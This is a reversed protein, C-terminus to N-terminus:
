LNVEVIEGTLISKRVDILRQNSSGRWHPDAGNFIDRERVGAEYRGDVLVDIASLWDIELEPLNAKEDTFVFNEGKKVLTYGTYLWVDKDKMRSVMRAIRGVQGRNAPHLPDGGSFTIGSIHDQLLLDFLEKEADSNFIKGGTVDWTHPNHCEYCCHECGAVWLVVRLGEGNKLDDKTIAHYMMSNKDNM